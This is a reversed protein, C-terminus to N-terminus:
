RVALAQAAEVILQERIQIPLKAIEASTMSFIDPMKNGFSKKGGAAGAGSHGEKALLGPQALAEGKLFEGYSVPGKDTQVVLNGDDDRVLDNIYAKRFTLRSKADLFPIDAIATDFASQRELEMQRATAQEAEAKRQASERTVNELARELNMLKANLDATGRDAVPRQPDQPIAPDAAVPIIPAEGPKTVPIIPDAPKTKMQEALKSVKKDMANTRKDLESLLKSMFAEPDFAGPNPDGGAAPIAGQDGGAAVPEPDMLVSRNVFPFRM